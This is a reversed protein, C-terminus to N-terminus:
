VVFIVNKIYKMFCKFVYLCMIQSSAFLLKLKLLLINSWRNLWMICAYVNMVNLPQRFLYLQKAFLFIIIIQFIKLLNYAMKTTVIWTIKKGQQIIGGIPCLQQVLQMMFYKSYSMHDKFFIWHYIWPKLFVRLRHYMQFFSCTVM